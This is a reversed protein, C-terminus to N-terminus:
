EGTSHQSDKEQKIDQIKFIAFTYIYGLCLKSFSNIWSFKVYEKRGNVFINDAEKFSM